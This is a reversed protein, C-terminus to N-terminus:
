RPNDGGEDHFILKRRLNNNKHYDSLRDMSKELAYKNDIM